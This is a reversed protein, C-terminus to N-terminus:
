CIAALVYQMPVGGERCALVAGASMRKTSGTIDVIVQDLVDGAQDFARLVARYAAPLAFASDLPVITIQVADNADQRVQDPLQAAKYLLVSESGLVAQLLEALLDSFANGLIAFVM